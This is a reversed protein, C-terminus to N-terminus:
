SKGYNALHAVTHISSFAVITWGVMKHIHINRDLPLICDVGVTHM